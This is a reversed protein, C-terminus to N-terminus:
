VCNNEAATLFTCLVCESCKSPLGPLLNRQFKSVNKGAEDIRVGSCVFLLLKSILMALRV